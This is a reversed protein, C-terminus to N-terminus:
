RRLIKRSLETRLKESLVFYIAFNSMCGIVTSIKLVEFFMKFDDLEMNMDKWVTIVMYNLQESYPSSVLMLPTVNKDLNDALNNWCSVFQGIFKSLVAHIKYSWCEKTMLENTVKNLVADIIKEWQAQLKKLLNDLQDLYEQNLGQKIMNRIETKRKGVIQKVDKSIREVVDLRRNKCVFNVNAMMDFPTRPRGFRRLPNKGFRSHPNIGFRSHPNIGFRSHPNIGFTFSKYEGELTSTKKIEKTDMEQFCTNQDREIENSVKQWVVNKDDSQNWYTRIINGNLYLRPVETVLFVVLVCLVLVSSRKQIHSVPTTKGKAKNICLTKFIICTSLVMCIMASGIIVSCVMPYYSLVYEHLVDLPQSISCIDANEVTTFSVVFLRPIHLALPLLFCVLCVIISKNASMSTRSWVPVVIAVLKQLGLSTTLLVSTLHFNDSLQSFVFHMVCYPYKLDVIQRNATKNVGNGEILSYNNAFVPEFGYLCFATLCDALALGQMLVTAPTKM